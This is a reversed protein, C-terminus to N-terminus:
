AVLVPDLIYPMLRTLVMPNERARIIGFQGYGGVGFPTNKLSYIEEALILTAEKVPAPVATWGWTATVQLPARQGPWACIFRQTGVARITWYPWGSQGDVIGDLPELQYDTTLWTTAFTGDGATDTKIVLDTTTSIDYVKTHCYSDPYFLRATASSAVNFQRHAMAEIGRSAASLAETLKTDESTASADTIGVRSRIEALTAYSDGLAM